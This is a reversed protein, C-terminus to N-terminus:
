KAHPAGQCESKVAEHEYVRGARIDAIAQVMLRAAAPDSLIELTEIITEFYSPSVAVFVPKNHRTVMVTDDSGLLDAIGSRAETIDVTRM